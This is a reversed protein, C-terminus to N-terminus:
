LCWSLIKRTEKFRRSVKNARLVICVYIQDRFKYASALCPGATVTIGTKMGIFGNRRLLKNTNTWVISRKKEPSNNQYTFSKYIETSTITIFLEDSLCECCLKSVDLATSKSDPHPLGHQNSFFTSMLNLAKANKNM